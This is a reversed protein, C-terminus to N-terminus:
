AECQLGEPDERGNKHGSAWLPRLLAHLASNASFPNARKPDGCLGAARGICFVVNCLEAFETLLNRASTNWAEHEFHDAKPDYPNPKGLAAEYLGRRRASTVSRMLAHTREEAQRNEHDSNTEM